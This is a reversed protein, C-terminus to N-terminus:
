ESETRWFSTSVTMGVRLGLYANAAGFIIALLIGIVLSTPTLEPTMKEAPVYPTYEKTEERM